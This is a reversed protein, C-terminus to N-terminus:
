AASLIKELTQKWDPNNIKLKYYTVPADGPAYDAILFEGGYSELRFLESGAPTNVTVLYRDMDTFPVTKSVIRTFKTNEILAILMDTQADNCTITQVIESKESTEKSKVIRVINGERVQALPKSLTEGSVTFYCVLLAVAVATLALVLLAIKKNKM